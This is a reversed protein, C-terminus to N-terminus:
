GMVEEARPHVPCLVKDPYPALYRQLEVNLSFPTKVLIDIDSAPLNIFLHMIRRRRVRELMVCVAREIGEPSGSVTTERLLANRPVEERKQMSITCLTSAKIFNMVVGRKGLVNGCRDAPLGIVVRGEAPCGKVVTYGLTPPAPQASLLPPAQAGYFFPQQPEFHPAMPNMASNVAPAPYAYPPYFRPAPHQYHPSPTRM